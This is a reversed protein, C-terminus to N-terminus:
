YRAVVPSGWNFRYNVGIRVVDDTLSVGRTNFTGGGAVVPPNIYNKTGFDAHLYELKVSWNELFGFEIGAGAVWGTRNQSDSVCVGAVTCVTLNTGAFAGGATGYLLVRDWAYGIRGRATDFWNEKVYNSSTPTFPPIEGATGSKNTWSIDGEVGFVVNSVQYNCGVTGGALGGSLDYKNTMPLGVDAATPSTVATSGTRGWNGGGEVGLYCGTWNYAPAVVVPAKSYVPAPAMDAASASVASIALVSIALALKKMVAELIRNPGPRAQFDGVTTDPNRLEPQIEFPVTAHSLM